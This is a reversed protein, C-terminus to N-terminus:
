LFSIKESKFIKKIKQESVNIKVFQSKKNYIEKIKDNLTFNLLLGRRVDGDTLTGMYKKNKDVVICFNRKLKGLKIVLKRIKEDSSITHDNFNKIKM